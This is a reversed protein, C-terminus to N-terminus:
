RSARRTPSTAPFGGPQGVVGNLTTVLGPAISLFGARASDQQNNFWRGGFHSGYCGISVQYPGPVVNRLLYRGNARTEVTSQFGSDFIGSASATIIGVCVNRVPHGSRDTVVGTLSGAPQM